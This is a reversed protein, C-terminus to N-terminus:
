RSEYNREELGVVCCVEAGGGAANAVELSGGIMDARHRMIRMGLGDSGRRPAMGTGNDKVVLRFENGRKEIRILIHDAKGHKLANTVAEQAIHYLHLAVTRELEANDVNGEIECEVGHIERTDRVLRKLAGELGENGLEVPALGKALRRVQALASKTLDVVEEAQSVGQLGSSSIMRVMARGRLVAATLKQGLSDHLDQGIRLKEQNGVELIEEELRRREAMESELQQKAQRLQATREAVEAEVKRTRRSAMLLEGSILLTVLMGSVMIWYPQMSEIRGVFKRGPVCEFLWTEGALEISDRFYFDRDAGASREDAIEGAGPVPVKHLSPQLMPGPSRQRVGSIIEGPRLVAVAFGVLYGPDSVPVSTGPLRSYHIPSFVYYGGGPGARTTRSDLSDHAPGGVRAESVDTFEEIAQRDAPRSSFDYGKPLRLAGGPTKYTLPYYFPKAPAPEFGGSEGPKVVQLRAGPDDGSAAARMLRERHGIKQVFGFGGLIRRQYIMGKELFEGFEEPGVQESISHLSRISDLVDVFLNMEHVAADRVAQARTLFDTEVERKLASSRQRGLYLSTSVGLVLVLISAALPLPFARKIM